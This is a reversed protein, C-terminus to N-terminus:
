MKMTCSNDQATIDLFYTIRTRDLVFFKKSFTIYEESKVTLTGPNESDYKKFKIVGENSFRKDIWQQAKVLIETSSGKAQLKEEFVVKGNVVPVKGISYETKDSKKSNGELPQAPAAATVLLLMLLPIFKKM